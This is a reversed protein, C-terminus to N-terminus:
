SVSLHALHGCGQWPSSISLPGNIFRWISGVVLIQLDFLDWSRAFPIIPEPDCPAQPYWSGVFGGYCCLRAECSSFIGRGWSHSQRFRLCKPSLHRNHRSLFPPSTHYLFSFAQQMCLIPIGRQCSNPGGASSCDEDSEAGLM